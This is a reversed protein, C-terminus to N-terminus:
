RAQTRVSPRASPPCEEVAKFRSRGQTNQTRTSLPSVHRMQTPRGAAGEDQGHGEYKPAAAHACDASSGDGADDLVRAAAHQRADRDLGHV